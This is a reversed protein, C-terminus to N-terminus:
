INLFEGAKYRKVMDAYSEHTIKIRLVARETSVPNVSHLVKGNFITPHKFSYELEYLKKNATNREADTGEWFILNNFNERPLLPCMITYELNRDTHPKFKFGPENLQFSVDAIGLPKLFNFQKLFDQIVPYDILRKGEYMPSHITLLRGNFGDILKQRNHTSSKEAAIVTKWENYELACHRMKMYLDTLAEIDYYIEELVIHHDYIV